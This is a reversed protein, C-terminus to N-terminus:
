AYWKDVEHYVKVLDGYGLSILFDCLIDDAEGHACETDYHDIQLKMM